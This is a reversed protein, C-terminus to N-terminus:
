ASVISKERYPKITNGPFFYGMKHVMSIRQGRIDNGLVDEDLNEDFILGEPMRISLEYSNIGDIPKWFLWTDIVPKRQSLFNGIRSVLAVFQEKTDDSINSSRIEALLSLKDDSKLSLYRYMALVLAKTDKKRLDSVHDNITTFEHVSANYAELSLQEPKVLNAGMGSSISDSNDNTEDQVSNAIMSSGNAERRQESEKDASNQIPSEEHHSIIASRTQIVLYILCFIIGIMIILGVGVLWLLITSNRKAKNEFAKLLEQQNSIDAVKVNLDQLSSYLVSDSQITVTDKVIKWKTEKIVIQKIIQPPMSAISDQAFVPFKMGIVLALTLCFLFSKKM